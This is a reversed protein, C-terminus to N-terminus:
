GLPKMAPARLGQRGSRGAVLIRPGSGDPLVVCIIKVQAYKGIDHAPDFDPFAVRRFIHSRAAVLVFRKSPKRLDAIQKLSGFGLWRKRGNLM